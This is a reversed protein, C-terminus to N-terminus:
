PAPGAPGGAAAPDVRTGAEAGAAARGTSYERRRSTFKSIVEQPAVEQEYGVTAGSSNIIPIRNGANDKKYTAVNGRLWEMIQQNTVSGNNDELLPRLLSQMEPSMAAASVREELQKAFQERAVPSASAAMDLFNAFTAFESTLKDEASMTSFTGAVAGGDSDIGALDGGSLMTQLRAGGQAAVARATRLNALQASSNRMAQYTRGYIVEKQDETYTGGGEAAWKAIDVRQSFSSAAMDPRQQNEGLMAGLEEARFVGAEILHNAAEGFGELDFRNEKSNWWGAGDLVTQGRMAAGMMAGTGMRAGTGAELRAVKERIQDETYVPDGNRRRIENLRKGFDAASTAFIAARTEDTDGLSFGGDAEAVKKLHDSHMKKGAQVFRARGGRTLINQDPITALRAATGLTRQAIGGEKGFEGSAFKGMRRKAANSRYNKARDFLGRSRDNAISFVTSMLGGALKFAFPLMFFPAFYLLMIFLYNGADIATAIRAMVEGSALFAMIIPFMVLTTILTDKWFKWLKQTGPLVYAAIALPALLIASALVIWRFALVILGIFVALMITFLFTLVGMFGIFAIYGLLAAAGLITAGWNLAINGPGSDAIPMGIFPGVILAHTWTGIDNFFSILLNMLPWSLAIGIMAIALRPMLRRITYADLIELGIAQSIVMALGALLVLAIGINRFTSWAKYMGQVSAAGNSQFIQDTPFYLLNMMQTVVWNASQQMATTLPCAIWDLASNFGCTSTSAGSQQDVATKLQQTAITNLDVAALTQGTRTFKYGGGGSTLSVALVSPLFQVAKGKDNTTVANSNYINCGTDPQIVKNKIQAAKSDGSSTGSCEQTTAALLSNIDPSAKDSFNFAFSYNHGVTLGYIRLENNVVEYNQASVTYDPTPGQYSASVTEDVASLNTITDTTIAGLAGVFYYVGTGSNIGICNSPAGGGARGGIIGPCKLNTTVDPATRTYTLPIAIYDGTKTVPDKPVAASAMVPVILASLTSAFLWAAIFFNRVHKNM